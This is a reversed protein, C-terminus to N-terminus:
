SPVVVQKDGQSGALASIRVFDQGRELNKIQPFSPRLCHRVRFPCTDACECGFRSHGARGVARRMHLAPKPYAVAAGPGGDGRIDHQTCDPADLGVELRSIDFQVLHMTLGVHPKSATARPGKTRKFRCTWGRGVIRDLQSGGCPVTARAIPTFGSNHRANTNVDLLCCQRDSMGNLAKRKNRFLMPNIRIITTRKDTNGRNEM